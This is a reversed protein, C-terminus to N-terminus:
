VFPTGKVRVGWKRPLAEFHELDAIDGEHERARQNNVSNEYTWNIMGNVKAHKETKDYFAHAPPQNRGTGKNLKTKTTTLVTVITARGSATIETLLAYLAAITLTNM